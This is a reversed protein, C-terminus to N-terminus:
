FTNDPIEVEQGHEVQIHVQKNRGKKIFSFVERVNDTQNGHNDAAVQDHCYHRCSKHFAVIKDLFPLFVIRELIKEYGYMYQSKHDKRRCRDLQELAPSSVVVLDVLQFFIRELDFQPFQLVLDIWMKKEIHQVIHIHQDFFIWVLSRHNDHLKGIEQSVLQIVAVLM